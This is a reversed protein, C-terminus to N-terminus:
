IITRGYYFYGLFSKIFREILKVEKKLIETVQPTLKENTKALDDLMTNVMSTGVQRSLEISGSIELMEDIIRKKEESIDTAHLSFTFLLLISLLLIKIM